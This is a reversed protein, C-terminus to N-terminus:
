KFKGKDETIMQLCRQLSKVAEIIDQEFEKSGRDGACLLKKIAHAVSPNTVAYLDLIRYVDIKTLHKVNKYYHPFEETM